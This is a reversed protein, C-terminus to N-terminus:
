GNARQSRKTMPSIQGKSPDETGWAIWDRYEPFHNILKELEDFYLKQKRQLVNKWYEKKAETIKTLDSNELGEEDKLLRIRDITDM